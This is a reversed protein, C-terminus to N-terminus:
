RCRRRRAHFSWSVRCAPNQLRVQYLAIVQWRQRRSRLTVQAMLPSTVEGRDRLKRSWRQSRRSCATRSLPKGRGCWRQALHPARVHRVGWHGRRPRCPAHRYLLGILISQPNFSSPEDHLLRCLFDVSARITIAPRQDPVGVRTVVQDPMFRIRRGTSLHCVCVHIRKQADGPRTRFKGRKAPQEVFWRVWCDRRSEGIQGGVAFQMRPTLPAVRRCAM